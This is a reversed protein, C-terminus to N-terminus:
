AKIWAHLDDYSDELWQAKCISHKGQSTLDVVHRAWELLRTQHQDCDELAEEIITDCLQTLYFLCTREVLLSANRESNDMRWEEMNKEADPLSTGWADYCFMARDNSVQAASLPTVHLGNILVASDTSETNYIVVDGSVGTSQKGSVVADFLLTTELGAGDPM